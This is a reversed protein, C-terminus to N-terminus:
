EAVKASALGGAYLAGGMGSVRLAQEALKRKIIDCVIAAFHVLTKNQSCGIPLAVTLNLAL